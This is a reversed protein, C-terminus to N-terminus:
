VGVIIASSRVQPKMAESTASMMFDEVNRGSEGTRSFKKSEHKPTTRINVFGSKRFMAGVEDILLAGAIRGGSLAYMM